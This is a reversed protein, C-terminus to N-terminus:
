WWWGGRAYGREAGHSRCGPASVTGTVATGEYTPPFWDPDIDLAELVEPSWDRQGLDFLLTGAGGAKDIAYEGTLKFRVYDKPLLIRRVRAFLDPEHNRVWLIKPATFGTLADNGTIQVLRKKGLRRRIEDCEAATRQDNWLIAPRLVKGAADLLVLGHMQGTLGLGKIDRPDVQSDALVQRISDITAQWWLDPHQETWMPRPTEYSYEASAVGVVQGDARMLLAKTATTSSDVGLFHTM